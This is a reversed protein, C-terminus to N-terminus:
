CNDVNSHSFIQFDIAENLYFSLKEMGNEWLEIQSYKLM